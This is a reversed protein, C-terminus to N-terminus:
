GGDIARHLHNMDCYRKNCTYHLLVCINERNNLESNREYYSTAHGIIFRKDLDIGRSEVFGHFEILPTNRLLLQYRYVDFIAWVTYNGSVINTTSEIPIMVAEFLSNQTIEYTDTPRNNVTQRVINLDEVNESPLWEDNQLDDATIRVYKGLRGFDQRLNRSNPWITITFIGTNVNQTFDLNIEFSVNNLTFLVM